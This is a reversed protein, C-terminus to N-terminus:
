ALTEFIYGKSIAVEITMSEFGPLHKLSAIVGTIMEFLDVQSYKVEVDKLKGMRLLETVMNDLKNATTHLYAFYEMFTM